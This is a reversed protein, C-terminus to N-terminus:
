KFMSLPNLCYISGFFVIESAGGTEKVPKPQHEDPKKKKLSPDGSPVMALPEPAAPTLGALKALEAASKLKPTM